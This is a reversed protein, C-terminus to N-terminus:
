PGLWPFGTKPLPVFYCGDIFHLIFWRWGDTMMMMKVM